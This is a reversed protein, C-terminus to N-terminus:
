MVGAGSRRKFSLIEQTASSVMGKKFAEDWEEKSKPAYTGQWCREFVEPHCVGMALGQRFALYANKDLTDMDYQKENVWGSKEGGIFEKDHFDIGVSALLPVLYLDLLNQPPTKSKLLLEESENKLYYEVEQRSAGEFALRSIKKIDDRMGYGMLAGTQFLWYSFSFFMPGAPMYPRQKIDRQILSRGTQAAFHYVLAPIKIENSNESAM